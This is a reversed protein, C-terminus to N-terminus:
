IIANTPVLFKERERDGGIKERSFWRLFWQSIAGKELLTSNFGPFYFIGLCFVGTSTCIRLSAYYPSSPTEDAQKQGLGFFLLFFFLIITQSNV